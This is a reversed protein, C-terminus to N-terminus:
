AAPGGAAQLNDNLADRIEKQVNLLADAAMKQKEEAARVKDIDSLFKRDSASLKVGQRGQKERLRAERRDFRAQEKQSREAEARRERFSQFRQAFTEPVDIFLEANAEAANKEAEDKIDKIAQIRLKKEEEIREKAKDAAEKNIEELKNRAEELAARVKPMEEAFMKEIFGGGEWAAQFEAFQEKGMIMDHEFKNAEAAAENALRRKDIAEKWEKEIEIYREYLNQNAEDIGQQFTVVKWAEGLEALLKKFKMAKFSADDFFGKIHDAAGQVKKTFKDVGEGTGFILAGINIAEVKITAFLRDFAKAQTATGTLAKDLTGAAGSMALLDDAAGQANKGTTGLVALVGEVRGMNEKLKTNLGGAEESLKGFAEQLTMTESWGDGLRDNVSILAARIQTMAQATPTGQKTLTAVAAFVQDFAVGSSAALPAVQAINASLESFTTKGLRVTNFMVDAINGAEESSMKFANLVTTIGDVAVSMDSGDAVAAKAATRLFSIANDKPVGASLANYLGNVLEDTAIGFEKSLEKVESRLGAAKAGGMLAEVRGMGKNFQVFQKVAAGMAVTIAAAAQAVVKAVGLAATGFGKLGRGASSLGKSFGDRVRVWISVDKAM